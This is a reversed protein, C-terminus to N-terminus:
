ERVARLEKVVEEVKNDAKVIDYNTNQLKVSIISM